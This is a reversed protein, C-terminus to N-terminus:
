RFLVPLTEPPAVGDEQEALALLLHMTNLEGHKMRVALSHAGQFAGQAKETFNQVEM